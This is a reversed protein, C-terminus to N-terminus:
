LNIRFRNEVMGAMDIGFGSVEGEVWIVAVLDQSHESEGGM